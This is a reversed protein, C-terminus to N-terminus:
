LLHCDSLHNLFETGNAFGSTEAGHESSGGGPGIRPWIFRTWVRACSSDLGCERV